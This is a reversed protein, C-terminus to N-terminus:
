NFAHDPIVQGCETSDSTSTSGGVGLVRDDQGYGSFMRAADEMEPTPLDGGVANLFVRAMNANADTGVLDALQPNTLDDFLM